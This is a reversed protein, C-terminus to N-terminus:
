RIDKKLNEFEKKAIEGKAYREKLIELATRNDAQVVGSSNTRKVLWVIFIIIGSIILAFFIFGLILGVIGLGVGFFNGMMNPGMMM